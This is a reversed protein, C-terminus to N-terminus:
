EQPVIPLNILSGQIAVNSAYLWGETGDPLIIQLWEDNATRGVAFVPDGEHMLAVRALETTPTARVNAPQKTFGIPAFAFTRSDSKLGTWVVLGGVSTAIITWDPSIVADMGLDYQGRLQANELRYFRAMFNNRAAIGTQSDPSIFIRDITNRFRLLQTPIGETNLTWLRGVGTSDISIIRSNDSTFTLSQLGGDFEGMLGTTVGGQVDWIRASEGEWTVLWRGNPSFQAHDIRTDSLHHPRISRMPNWLQLSAGWTVLLGDRSFDVHTASNTKLVVETEGTTSDLISVQGDLTVIAIQSNFITSDFGEVQALINGTALAYLTYTDFIDHTLINSGVFTLDLYPTTHTPFQQMLQGDHDFVKISTGLSDTIALYHDDSSWQYLTVAPTYDEICFRQQGHPTHSANWVCLNRDLSATIFATGSPSFRMETIPATHQRLLTLVGLNAADEATIPQLPSEQATAPFALIGLLALYCILRIMVSYLCFVRKRHRAM